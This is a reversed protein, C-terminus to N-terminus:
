QNSLPPPVLWFCHFRTLHTTPHLVLPLKCIIQAYLIHNREPHTPPVTVPNLLSLSPSDISVKKPSRYTSPRVQVPYTSLCKTPCRSPYSFSVFSPSLISPHPFSFPPTQNSQIRYVHSTASLISRISPPSPFPPSLVSPFPLILPLFYVVRVPHIWDLSLSAITLRIVTPPSAHPPYPLCCPVISEGPSISYIPLFFLPLSSLESIVLDKPTLKYTCRLM